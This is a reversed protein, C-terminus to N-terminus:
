TLHSDLIKQREEIARHWLSVQIDGADNILLARLIMTPIPGDIHRRVAKILRSNPPLPELYGMAIVATRRERLWPQPHMSDLCLSIDVPLVAGDDQLLITSSEMHYYHIRGMLRVKTPRTDFSISSLQVLIAPETPHPM